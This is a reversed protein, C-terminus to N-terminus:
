SMWNHDKQKNWKITIKKTDSWFDVGASGTIDGHGFKSDGIGGFSFPERPVPVGINVGIMGAKARKAVEEALGGNKTFIAAANGYPNSNEIEIAESLTKCRIITLIPGFLEVQTSQMDKNAHDIITPGLWHGGPYNEPSAVNSGDLLIKAGEEKAKAIAGELFKVQSQTIIAGMQSGLQLEKTKKVVGDILDDCDGVALLVSAAMCRQGACGTFSDRINQCAVEPDADPMLILHNKAGGLALVRKGSRSAREYVLKAIPTSGVFSVAKITPHDILGNVTDADGHVVSFAGKPLGSDALAKAIENATLPTKESPKWVFANGVTLAIPIMWMPVMAPFNFPTIGLVVGLPIRRYECTVGRSIELKAGSDLNQISLAFELIEVGKMIGARSEAITKGNELSIIKSISEIRELLIERFKFMVQCREKLPTAQWQEFGKSALQVAREIDDKDSLPVVGIKKGFFPSVVDLTNQQMEQFEGGVFNQAQINGQPLDLTNM